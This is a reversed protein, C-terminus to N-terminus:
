AIDDDVGDPDGLGELGGAAWGDGLGADGELVEGHGEDHALPEAVGIGDGGECAAESADVAEESLLLFGGEGFLDSANGELLEGFVEELGDVAVGDFREGEGVGSQGGVGVGAVGGAFLGLLLEDGFRDRGEGSGGDGVEHLGALGVQLGDVGGGDVDEESGTPVGGSSVGLSWLVELGEEGLVFVLEGGEGDKVLLGLASLFEGEGLDVFHEGGELGFGGVEGRELNPLGVGGEVFEGVAGSGDALEGGEDGEDAADGSEIFGESGEGFRHAAVEAVPNQLLVGAFCVGEGFGLVVPELEDAVM